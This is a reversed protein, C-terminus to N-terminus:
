IIVSLGLTPWPIIVFFCLYGGIVCMCADDLLVSPDNIVFINFGINFEDYSGDNGRTRIYISGKSTLLTASSMTMALRSALKM